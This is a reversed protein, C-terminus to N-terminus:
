DNSLKAVFYMLLLTLSMEDISETGAYDSALYRCESAYLMLLWLNQVPIGASYNQELTPESVAAINM